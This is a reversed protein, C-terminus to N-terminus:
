NGKQLLSAISRRFEQIQGLKNVEWNSKAEGIYNSNGM